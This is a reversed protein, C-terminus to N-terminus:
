AEPTSEEDTNHQAADIDQKVQQYAKNLKDKAQQALDQLKEKTQKGDESNLWKSAAVGAAAGVALLFASKFFSNAM